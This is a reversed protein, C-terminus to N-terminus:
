DDFGVCIWNPHLKERVRLSSGQLLTLIRRYIFIMAAYIHMIYKTCKCCKQVDNGPINKSCVCCISIQANKIVRAAMKFLIVKPFNVEWERDPLNMVWFTLKGNKVPKFM